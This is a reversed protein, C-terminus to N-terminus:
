CNGVEYVEVGKAIWGVLQNEELPEFTIEDYKVLNLTLLQSFFDKFIILTDSQVDEFETDKDSVVDLIKFDILYKVRSAQTTKSAIYAPVKDITDGWRDDYFANLLPMGEATDRILQKTNKLSM